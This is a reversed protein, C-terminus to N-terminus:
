KIGSRVPRVYDTDNIGIKFISGYNFSVSWIRYENFFDGTMMSLQIRSFLPDIHYLKVAKKDLISAAEELTPLRWSSYGAYGKSNLQKLWEGAKEYTMMTESGSQHWTLNTVRDIVVDNKLITKLEFENIIGGSRNKRHDYFNYKKLMEKVHDINIQYYDSRLKLEGGPVATEEGVCGPGSLLVFVILSVFYIIRM